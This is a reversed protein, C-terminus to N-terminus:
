IKYKVNNIYLETNLENLEKLNDHYHKNGKNFGNTNDLFYIEKNIDNKNIELKIKIENKNLEDLPYKLYTGINFIENNKRVFGKHIGIIKNTSLSLIPGGSSCLDTHLSHKIDYENNKTIGNLKQNIYVNLKTNTEIFNDDIVHYNTMLVPILKNNYLIKCFFGTGFKKGNIKCVCNKMQNLIKEAKDIPIANIAGPIYGEEIRDEM